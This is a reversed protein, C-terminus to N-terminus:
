RDAQGDPDWAKITRSPLQVPTADPPVDADDFDFARAAGAAPAVPRFWAPSAEAWAAEGHGVFELLAHELFARDKLGEFRQIKATRRDIFVYTPTVRVNMKAQLETQDLWNEIYRTEVGNYQLFDLQTQATVTDNDLSVAIVRPGLEREFIDTGFAAFDRFGRLSFACRHDWFYLLEVLRTTTRGPTEPIEEPKLGAVRAQQPDMVPVGWNDPAYSYPPNLARANTIEPKPPKFAAPTVLGHEVAVRQMIESAQLYRRARVRSSELYALATADNPNDLFQKTFVDPFRPRPNGHEDYVTETWLPLPGINSDVFVQEPHRWVAGYIDGRHEAVWAGGPQREAAAAVPASPQTPRDDVIILVDNVIRESAAAPTIAAIVVAVLIAPVVTAITM